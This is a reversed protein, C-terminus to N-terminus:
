HCLDSTRRQFHKITGWWRQTWSAEAGCQQVTGQGLLSAIGTEAKSSHTKRCLGLLPRWHPRHTGPIDHGWSCGSKMRKWSSFESACEVTRWYVKNDFNFGGTNWLVGDLFYLLGCFHSFIGVFGRICSKHGSQTFYGVILLCGLKSFLCLNSNSPDLSSTSM